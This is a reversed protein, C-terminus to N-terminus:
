AYAIAQIVTRREIQATVQCRKGTKSATKVRVTLTNAAQEPRFTTTDAVLSTLDLSYWGGGLDTATATVLTGNVLWEIASAAYTNLSSDEYIGYTLALSNALDLALNTQSGGDASTTSSPTTTESTTEGSDSNTPYDFDSGSAASVFGGSTGAAGFGVPYTPASGGSVTFKHVHDPIDHRHSVGPVSHSHVPIDVTGTVTGGITKTTSRFPDVRFRVLVQNVVTTENGLWFRMDASYSDDIPERYSITDVSPGMQPLAQMVATQRMESVIAAMDSEPWQARTAVTLGTTQIGDANVSTQVELVRLDADINIPREGDVFRRAQVRVLDGPALVGRVGAVALSYAYLPARNRSLHEIAAVVLTNAAAQVDADTNSIPGIEKWAVAREIRGYTAEATTNTITNTSRSFVYSQGDAGVYTASLATGNPWMTAAALTLRAKGTGAGFVVVRTTIDAAQRQEELSTILCVDANHEIALPDANAIARLTAVTPLAALVELTRPDSATAARRFWLPLRDALATLSGLYTDYVFHAIFDPAADVDASLTWTAPDYLGLWVELEGLGTNSFTIDGVTGHNLEELLDRGSIELTPAGDALRVRLDEITGGGIFTKRGAIMAWALVTRKPQLLEVARMDTAPVTASWDGARNLKASSRFAIVNVVPGEGTTAGSAQVDLWIRM